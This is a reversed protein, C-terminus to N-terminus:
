YDAEAWFAGRLDGVAYGTAVDAPYRRALAGSVGMDMAAVGARPADGPRGGHCTLCLPAVGIPELVRAVGGSAEAVGAVGEVPREGQAELWGTVWAPAPPEPNRRRLSARGLRVGTEQEVGDRLSAAENACVEVAAEGGEVLAAQLRQGLRMRLTAIAGRARREAKEEPTLEGCGAMTVVLLAIMARATAKDGDRRM